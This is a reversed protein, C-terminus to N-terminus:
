AYESVEEDLCEDNECYCEGCNECHDDLHYFCDACANDDDEGLQKKLARVGPQQIVSM